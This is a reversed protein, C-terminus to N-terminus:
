RPSSWFYLSRNEESTILLVGKVLNRKQRLTLRCSLNNSWLELTNPFQNKWFHSRALVCISATSPWGTFWSTCKCDIEGAFTL